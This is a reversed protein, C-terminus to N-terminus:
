VAWSRLFLRVYLCSEVSDVHLTPYRMVLHGNSCAALGEGKEDHLAAYGAYTYVYVGQGACRLRLGSICLLTMYIANLLECRKAYTM